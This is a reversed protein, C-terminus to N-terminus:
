NWLAALTENRVAVDLALLHTLGARSWFQGTRKFRDQLQSCQSEVAGFGIPGGRVAVAEYDLHERHDLFYGVSQHLTPDPAPASAAADAPTSGGGPLARKM